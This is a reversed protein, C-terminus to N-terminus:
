GRSHPVTLRGSARSQLRVGSGAPTRQRSPDLAPPRCQLSQSLQHVGADDNECSLSGSGPPAARRQPRTAPRPPEPGLRLDAIVRRPHLRRRTSADPSQAGGRTRVEPTGRHSPADRSKVSAIPAPRTRRRHPARTAPLKRPESGAACGSPGGLREAHGPHAVRRWLTVSRAVMVPMAPEVGSVSDRADRQRFRPNPSFSLTTMAARANTILTTKPMAWSILFSEAPALGPIEALAVAVGSGVM